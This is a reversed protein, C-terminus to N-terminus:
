GPAYGTPPRHHRRQEGLATLAAIQRVFEPAAAAGFTEYALEIGNAGARGLTRAAVDDVPATQCAQPAAPGAPV